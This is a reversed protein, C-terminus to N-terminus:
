AVLSWSLFCKQPSRLVAQGLWISYIKWFMNDTPSKKKEYYVQWDSFSLIQTWSTREPFLVWTIKINSCSEFTSFFFDFVWLNCWTVVNMSLRLLLNDLFSCATHITTYYYIWHLQQQWQKWPTQLKTKQDKPWGVFIIILVTRIRKFCLSSSPLVHNFLSFVVLSKLSHM